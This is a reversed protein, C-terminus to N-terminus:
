NREKAEQRDKSWDLFRKITRGDEVEKKVWRKLNERTFTFANLWGQDALPGGYDRWALQALPHIPTGYLTNLAFQYCTWGVADACQLGAVDKAKRFSFNTYDGSHGQEAAIRECYEMAREVERRRPDTSKNGMSAFIYEFPLQVQFKEAYAIAFSLCWTYHHQGFYQKFFPPLIEDYDNKKISASIGRIGYKKSIQRVRSFVRAVKRDDWAAFPSKPNKWICESTHFYEFVEKKRLANWESEMRIVQKSPIVIATAIAVKQSPSTGSDDSYFVFNYATVAAGGV